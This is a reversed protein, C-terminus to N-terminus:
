RVMSWEIPEEADIPRAAVRGILTEMEDVGIGGGPRKLTFDAASLMEGAAISRNAILSRGAKDRVDLEIEQMDIEGDGLVGATLRINHIYAKLHEPELSFRHDPGELKRDLTFHKEIISAGAAVALPGIEISDTHDSFGAVLHYRQHLAWIRRLNAMSAPAPYASVCHLLAARGDREAMIRAVCEDIETEYCAGTSVIMPIETQIAADILPQNTLDTSAIKIAAVDLEALLALSSLDFPTALFEIGAQKCADRLVRVENPTLEYQKLLDHQDTEGCTEQQYLAAPAGRCILEDTRYVQFKVADAGAQKAARIMHMATDLSGNHNVGAEAIVYPMEIAGVTKKGITLRPTDVDNMALM